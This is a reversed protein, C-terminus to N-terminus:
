KSNPWDLDDRDDDDAGPVGIGILILIRALAAARHHAFCPAGETMCKGQRRCRRERCIGSLGILQAVVQRRWIRYEMAFRPSAEYVAAAERKRIEAALAKRFMTLQANRKATEEDRDM